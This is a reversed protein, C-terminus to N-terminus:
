RHTFIGIDPCYRYPKSRSPGRLMRNYIKEKSIERPGEEESGSAETELYIDFCMLLRQMQNSLITDCSKSKMLEEHHVNVEEEMEKIHEDNMATREHQWLVSVTFLPAVKPYDHTMVVQATMKASGRDIIATFFIDSEEVVGDTVLAETYPLAAFDEYTARKWSTLRSVIKSPFLGQYEPDVVVNGTEFAATQKMLCLRSRVRRKLRRITEQMHTFSIDEEPTNVANNELFQLGGLWQAWLYPRGVESIYSTFDKLGLKRLEYQNAPNPSTNGHDGPYLDTLISKPALLDSSSFVYAVTVSGSVSSANNEALTLNIDVTIIGMTLMFHFTLHLSNGDKCNIDLKVALPHKRLAQQKREEVRGDQTKRRRKSKKSHEQEEQDSDSDEEVVQSRSKIAKAAELDGIISVQLNKDCAQRYASTQMYLVYLPPPLHRATEQEERIQDFPMDLYEQVPKTAELVTKLKPQLNELYEQKSKIEHALGEKSQKSDKLKKALQKRQELEWDLRALRQQHQDTKTTEPHSIDAPATKYFEELSVLEIEEDKSKFELCKNIEKELHMIEYLLNQLQLHYQDIRQKAENTNERVKKCRVHALRNLKKLNIFDLTVSVRKDDIEDHPAKKDKLSRIDLMAQRIDACTSKFIEVDKEPSRTDVEAEEAYFLSASLKSEKMIADQKIRKQESAEKRIARKSRKETKEEKSM